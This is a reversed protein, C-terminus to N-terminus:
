MFDALDSQKAKEDCFISDIDKQILDLRQQMYVPLNYRNALDRSPKLYKEIGGKYITLLLKGGCRTCKGVLPVRRYKSNCDTCRFMQRSFSRLNGYMDPLFHALLVRKAVESPIVARIKDELKFQAEVKKTMKKDLSIYASMKPGDEISSASHTYKLDGYAAPSKLLDAVTPLKVDSPALFKQTAEYFSLPYNDVVEMCHVEDDIETPDLRTTLVLPADMTGGRSAPLFDRSFNLLGDMLLMLCDEDGDANRRKACHFFPHAFGVHANTFGIIRSLVGASTHPSLGITLQGILDEKTKLKYYPRMQYVEVLMEDLYKSVKFFHDAGDFPLIVDQPLIYLMQEDSTLPKGYIDHTYGLERLKKYPTYIEKPTFHTLVYDTMDFRCTSDRFVSLGYKARIFGKDLLEPIKRASIMGKLGKIEPLNQLNLRKKVLEIERVLNISRKDFSVVKGDCYDCREKRSMRGCSSCGPLYNCEGSCYSCRLSHNIKGCSSCKLRAVEVWIGKGEKVEDSRMKSYQRVIQRSKNLHGVPFLVHVPPSMERKRAKEPRGMRTAIYVPAKPMINIGSIAALNEHVSKKEDFKKEFNDFTLSKKGEDFIALSNLLSYTVQPDFIIKNNEVFHPICAEELILKQPANEIECSKLGFWGFELNANTLWKALEKLQLSNIDDYFYTFEPHLPIQHTRALEFAKKATIKKPIQIQKAVCIQEWWEEVIPSPMLPHNSKLFDGYSILIDGLFLIRDVQPNIEKATKSDKIQVVSGNKLRVIPGMISDCPAVVTGKGPRDLKFQTGIAPFEDLIYMTAPHIAKAAIGTCRMRGYRLRFGGAKLSFSFIPRGAVLEDMFKNNEKLEFSGSDSKKVGKQLAQLFTWDLGIKSTYKIVKAAKQAIGECIVLAIGGRVKNTEMRPLDRYVSVEIQETPEGSVCVPCNRVIHKIEDDSPKYQLRACRDNYLNCEEVYRALETETPRYKGIAFHKRAVDALVVAQAAVTGGASRIPGAFYIAIYSSGDPNGDSPNQNNPKKIRVSAIGETPAVLVGETLISVGTRVAQDILKQDDGSILEGKCIKLVVEKAIIPRAIGKSELERIIAAVGQPGVLGEVRAAVDAAPKIEVFRQPDFGQARAHQAVDYAADMNEKLIKFYKQMEEDIQETSKQYDNSLVSNLKQAIKKRIQYKSM